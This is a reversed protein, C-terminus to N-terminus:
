PRAASGAPAGTNWVERSFLWRGDPERHWLQMYHGRDTAPPGGAAPVLTWEFAAVEMAWEGDLFLERDTVNLSSTRMQGVLAEYWTRAAVKGNLAAEGPPMIVVDDALLVSLSDPDDSRLAALLRDAASDVAARAVPHESSAGPPGAKDASQTLCAAIGLLLVPM